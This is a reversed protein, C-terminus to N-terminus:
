ERAVRGSRCALAQETLRLPTLCAESVVPGHPIDTKPPTNQHRLTKYFCCCRLSHVSSDCVHQIQRQRKRTHRPALHRPIAIAPIVAGCAHDHDASRGARDALCADDVAFLLRLGACGGGMRTSSSASNQLQNVQWRARAAPNSM